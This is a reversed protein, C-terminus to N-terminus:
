RGWRGSRRRQDDGAPDEGVAVAVDGLDDEGAALDADAVPAPEMAEEAVGGPVEVGEGHGQGLEDDGDEGRPGSEEPGDVVGEAAFAAQGEVAGAHMVVREDGAAGFGSTLQPCSQTTRQRIMTWGNQAGVLTKAKGM